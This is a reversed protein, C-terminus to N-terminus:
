DDDQREDGPRVLLAAVIAISNVGISGLAIPWAFGSTLAIGLVLGVVACFVGPWRWRLRGGYVRLGAVAQVIGILAFLWVLFFLPAGLALTFAAGFALALGAARRRLAALRTREWGVVPAEKSSM